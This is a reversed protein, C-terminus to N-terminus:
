RIKNPVIPFLALSVVTSSLTFVSNLFDNRNWVVQNCDGIDVLDFPM